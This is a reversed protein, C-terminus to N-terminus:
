KKSPNKSLAQKRLMKTHPIGDELYEKGTAAFGHTEYFKKLHTQAGIEIIEENFVERIVQISAKLIAHGYGHTREPASVAVRGISAHPYYDGARFLRTYAIIKGDKEGILHLALADKGDLDQYACSQEVVFVESRLQLIAYLQAPTLDAFSLTYLHIPNLSQNQM